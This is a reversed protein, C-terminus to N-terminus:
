RDIFKTSFREFQRDLIPRLRQGRGLILVGLIPYIPMLISSPEPVLLASAGAQGGTMGFREMWIAYDADDVGNLGDGNQQISTEDAEGVHDRWLTYDAADIEGDANFDGASENVISEVLISLTYFQVANASGAVKAFYSGPQLLQFDSIAEAVGLGNVGASAILTPAGNVEGYLEVSLDSQQSANVTMTPGPAIFENFSPGVPTLVLDLTCPSSTEFKFFDLDSSNGISVFDAEGAEIRVGTTAHTGLVIPIGPVAPGLDVASPLSNNGGAKELADGYLYHAARVDDFQPGDFTSNPAGEMLFASNPSITHDLGLGHGIEHTLTNRFKVFLGNAGADGFYATDSADLTIDANPVNYASAYTGSAGDVFAAGLRIDGRVGLQGAWQGHARGLLGDDTPQYDFSVGSVESWRNFSQEVLTFWPRQEFDNGGPGSGFLGDLFSVLYSTTNVNNITKLPTGDPVISWTLTVPNGIPDTVGDTATFMWRGHSVFATAVGGTALVVSTAAIAISLRNWSIM